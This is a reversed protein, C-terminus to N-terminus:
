AFGVDLVKLMFRHVGDTHKLGTLRLSLSGTCSQSTSMRNLCRILPMKAGLTRGGSASHESSDLLNASFNAAWTWHISFLPM